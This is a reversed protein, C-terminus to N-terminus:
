LREMPAGGDDDGGGGITTPSPTKQRRGKGCTNFCLRLRWHVQAPPLQAEARGSSVRPVPNGGSGGRMIFLFIWRM